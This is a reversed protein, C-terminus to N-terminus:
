SDEFTEQIVLTESTEFICISANQLLIQSWFRAGFNKITWSICNLAGGKKSIETTNSFVTGSHFFRFCQGGRALLISNSECLKIVPVYVVCSYCFIYVTGAYKGTNATM